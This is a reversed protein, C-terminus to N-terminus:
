NPLEQFLVRTKYPPDALSSVAKPFDISMSKLRLILRYHAPLQRTVHPFTSYVEHGPRKKSPIYVHIPFLIGVKPLRWCMSVNLRSVPIKVGGIIIMVVLM